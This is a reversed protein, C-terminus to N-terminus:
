FQFLNFMEVLIDLGEYALILRKSTLPYTGGEFLQLLARLCGVYPDNKRFHQQWIKALIPEVDLELGTFCDTGQKRKSNRKNECNVAMSRTEIAM